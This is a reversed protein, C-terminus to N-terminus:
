HVSYRDTLLWCISPLCRIHSAPVLDLLIFSTAELSGHIVEEGATTSTQVSVVGEESASEVIDSEERHM